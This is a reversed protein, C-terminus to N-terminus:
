GNAINRKLRAGVYDGLSSLQAPTLIQGTINLNVQIPQSNGGVSINNAANYPVNAIAAYSGSGVRIRRITDAKTDFELRKKEIASLEDMSKRLLEESIGRVEAIRKTGDLIEVIADKDRKTQGPIQAQLKKANAIITSIDTPQKSLGQAESALIDPSLDLLGPASGQSKSGGASSLKPLKPHAIANLFDQRAKAAAKDAAAQADKQSQIASSGQSYAQLGSVESGGPGSLAAVAAQDSTTGAQVGRVTEIIDLQIATYKPVALIAAGVGLIQTILPTIQEASLGSSLGIQIIRAVFDEASLTAADQLGPYKTYERELTRLQTPDLKLVEANLKRQGQYAANAQDIEAQYRGPHDKYDGAAQNQQIQLIRSAYDATAGVNAKNIRQQLKDAAAAAKELADAYNGTKSTLGSTLGTAEILRSEAERLASGGKSKLEDYANGQGSIAKTSQLIAKAYQEQYYASDPQSALKQAASEINQSPTPLRTGVDGRFGPVSAGQQSATQAFYAAQGQLNNLSTQKKAEEPSILGLELQAQINANGIAVQGLVFDYSSAGQVANNWVKQFSAALDPNTKALKDLSAQVADITARSLDFKAAVQTGTSNFIDKVDQAGSAIKAFDINQGTEVNTGTLSGSLPVFQRGRGFTSETGPAFPLDKFAANYSDLKKQFDAQVTQYEEITQTLAPNQQLFGTNQNFTYGQPAPGSVNPNYGTNPLPKGFFDVPVTSPAVVPGYPTQITQTNTPQPATLTPKTPLGRYGTTINNFSPASFDTQGAYIGGTQFDPNTQRLIDETLASKINKLDEPNYVGSKIIDVQFNHSALATGLNNFSETLNRNATIIQITNDAYALQYATLQKQEDISFKISDKTSLNSKTQTDQLGQIEAALTTHTDTLDKLANQAAGYKQIADITSQEEALTAVTDEKKAQTLGKVTSILLGIGAAPLGIEPNGTLSAIGGFSTLGNAISDIIDGGAAQTVVGAVAGVVGAKGLSGRGGLKSIVGGGGGAASNFGQTATAAQTASVAVRGFSAGISTLLGNLGSGVGILLRVALLVAGFAVGAGILQPVFPIKGINGLIQFVQLLNTGLTLLTSTIDKVVAGFQQFIVTDFAAKFQTIKASNTDLIRANAILAENTANISVETATQVKGINDLLAAADPARRPGGSIARVVAQIDGAPIAGSKIKAAIESYVDIINRVQGFQDKVSIGFAKLEKISGPSALSGILNKFATAVEAPSKATVQSLTQLTGIMQDLSLNGDKAASAISGIGQIVDAIAQSQGGAVATVKDLVGLLDSPAIQLQKFASTLLDTAKVTDIGTLNTLIGVSQTLAVIDNQYDLTSQGARKVALAIDDAANIVDQLPTATQQAVRSLRGFLSQVQEGTLGSTTGLKTLGSNLSNISTIQSIALGFTGFTLGATVAFQATRYLTRGFNTFANSAGTLPGNLKTIIQGNDNLEANFRQVGQASLAAKKDLNEFELGVNTRGRTADRTIGTVSANQQAVIEALAATDSQPIRQGVGYRKLAVANDPLDTGRVAFGQAQAKAYLDPSLALISALQPPIPPTKNAIRYPESSQILAQMKADAAAQLAVMNAGNQAIDFELQTYIAKKAAVEARLAAELQTAGKEEAAIQAGYSTNIGSLETTLTLRRADIIAHPVFSGGKYLQGTTSSLISRNVAVRYQGTNPDTTYSSTLSAIEANKSAIAADRQNRIEDARQRKQDIQVQTQIYAETKPYNKFEKAAEVSAKQLQLQEQLLVGQAHARDQQVVRLENELAIQQKISAQYEDLNGLNRKFDSVYADGFIPKIQIDGVRNITAEYDAIYRRVITGSQQFTRNISDVTTRANQVLLGESANGGTLPGGSIGQVLGANTASLSQRASVVTNRISQDFQRLNGIDGVFRVKFDPM